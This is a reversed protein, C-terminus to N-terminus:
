RKLPSYNLNAAEEPTKLLNIVEQVGEVRRIDGVIQEILATSAATGRVTVIGNVAGINIDGKPVEPRRFIETEVRHKLYQDLDPPEFEQHHIVQRGEHALGTLSGRMYKARRHSFTSVARANAHWLHAMKDRIMARNRRGTNPTLLWAASAGLILGGVMSSWVSTEVDPLQSLPSLHQDRRVFDVYEQLGRKRSTKRQRRLWDPIRGTIDM